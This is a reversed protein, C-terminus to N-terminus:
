SESIMKEALRDTRSNYTTADIDGFLFILALMKTQYELKEINEITQQVRAEKKYARVRRQTEIREKIAEVIMIDPHYCM